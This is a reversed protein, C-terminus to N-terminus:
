GMTVNLNSLQPFALSDRLKLQYVLLTFLPVCLLLGLKQEEKRKPENCYLTLFMTWNVIFTHKWTCTENLWEVTTFTVCVFLYRAKTYYMEKTHANFQVSKRVTYNIGSRACLDSLVSRFMTFGLLTVRDKTTSYFGLANGFCYLQLTLIRPEM